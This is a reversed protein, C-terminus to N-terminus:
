APLLSRNESLVYRVGAADLLAETVKGDGFRQSKHKLAASLGFRRAIRRFDHLPVRRVDRAGNLEYYAERKMPVLCGGTREVTTPAYLTDGREVWCHIFPVRSANAPVEGAEIQEPTAARLTGFTVVSGRLDLALAVSRQVCSNSGDRGKYAMAANLHPLMSVPMMIADRSLRAM